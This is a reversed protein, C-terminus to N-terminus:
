DNHRYSLVQFNGHVLISHVAFWWTYLLSTPPPPFQSLLKELYLYKNISLQQKNVKSLMLYATITYHFLNSNNTILKSINVYFKM